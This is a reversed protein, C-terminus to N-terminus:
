SITKELMASLAMTSNVINGLVMKQENSFSAYDGGYLGMSNMFSNKLGNRIDITEELISKIKADVEKISETNKKVKEIEENKEANLKIRKKTFLVISSLLSAGAITWGIPGALALLANGAAMGGGGAALAGGGLWALAANTAAAGSLASIATGTSATGFTTAIWMAATPAMFAVSAGAALGAGAGGAAKRAANIERDAFECSNIFQKRNTEILEFDDDFEKPHNAISNVLCEVDDIVDVSRNREVFLKVGKDNMLTYADNYNTIEEELMRDLETLKDNIDNKTQVVKDKYEVAKDKAASGAKEVSNGFATVANGISKGLAMGAKEVLSEIDSKDNNSKENEKTEKKEKGM